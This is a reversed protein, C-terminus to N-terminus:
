GKLQELAANIMEANRSNRHIATYAQPGSYFSIINHKLDAPINQFNRQQLKLLLDNYADDAMDYEGAATKEGTDFDKDPLMREAVPLSYVYRAVVTDFSQAFLKEAEANPVVLKLKKLPGVKPLYHIITIMIRTPLHPKERAEGFEKIYDMRRMRYVYSRRTATPATKLIEKKKNNWATRTLQPFVDKVSWRFTNVAKSFNSFVDDIDLGYTKVFARRLVPESVKFGIYDHYAQINYNSRVTQMVDFSLETRVHSIHDQSYTVTDGYRRKLKPFIVPVSRNIGIPHGFNDANYHALCGLAFAYENMDSAEDLLATVFDGSRVYHVLDTFLKSGRPYYGMDPAVAGGYAYAHAEKLEEATVNPYRQQLLPVIHKEWAADIIAEHTLISYAFSIQTHLFFSIILLTCRRM